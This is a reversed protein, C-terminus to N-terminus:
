EAAKAKPEAPKPESKKLMTVRENGFAHVLTAKFESPAALVRHYRALKFLQEGDDGTPRLRAAAALDMADIEVDSYFAAMAKSMERYFQMRRNQAKRRQNKANFTIHRDKRRWWELWLGFQDGPKTVGEAKLWKNFAARNTCYYDGADKSGTKARVEDRHEKWKRWLAEVDIRKAIDDRWRQAIRGLKHHDRWKAIYQLSKAIVEDDSMWKPVPRGNAIWARLADRADDFHTDACGRLLNAFELGNIVAAPVVVPLDDNITAVLIGASGDQGETRSWRFKVKATGNTGVPREIMPRLPEITLQLEFRNRNQSPKPVLYAWRIRADKPVPRHILVEFSVKENGGLRLDAIASRWVSRNGRSNPRTVCLDRFQLARCEGNFLDAGVFPVKENGRRKTTVQIGIKRGIGNFKRFRPEGGKTTKTAQEVADEVASYTGHLVGCKARLEKLRDNMELDLAKTEKFADPWPENKMREFVARNLRAKVHTHGDKTHEKFHERGPATLARFRERLERARVSLEAREAKLAKIDQTLQKDDVQKTPRIVRPAASKVSAKKRLLRIQERKGEILEKLEKIRDELENLGPVHRARIERYTAARERKLEILQNYYNHARRMHTRALEENELIRRCGFKLVMM